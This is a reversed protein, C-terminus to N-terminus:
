RSPSGTSTAPRSGRSPPASGPGTAPSASSRAASTTASPSGGRRPARGPPRDGGRDYAADTHDNLAPGRGRVQWDTCVRLLDDNLALFREYADRVAEAAGRGRGRRGPRARGRSRGDSTLMWGTLRGERYGALGAEALGALEAEVVPPDLGAREAVAECPAFGALRLGHLALLRPESRHAM